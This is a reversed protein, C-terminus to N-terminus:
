IGYYKTIKEQLENLMEINKIRCAEVAEEYSDFYKKNEIGKTVLYNVDTKKAMVVREPLWELIKHKENDLFSNYKQRQVIKWKGVIPEEKYPNWVFADLNFKNIIKIATNSTKYKDADRLNQTWKIEQVRFEKNFDISKLFGKGSIIFNNM